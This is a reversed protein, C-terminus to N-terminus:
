EGIQVGTMSISGLAVSENFFAVPENPLQLALAYLLPLYHEPTPVARAADPLKKYAILAEHEGATIHGRVTEDFKAAWSAGTHDDPDILSLNHAINGSGIVLVGDDRLPALRKALAYHQAPTLNTDMSLQVVPVSADPYLHILISWVGHDLGRGPDLTPSHTKLLEAARAALEPDGPPQYRVDFLERPFGRFDHITEHAEGSSIRTGSTEWHASICLVARPTQLKRGLKRWVKSYPTDEIANMPSGHGVFLVPM